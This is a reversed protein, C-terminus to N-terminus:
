ENLRNSSHISISIKSVTSLKVLPSCNRSECTYRCSHKVQCILGKTKIGMQMCLWLSLQKIIEFSFQPVAALREINFPLPNSSLLFLSCFSFQQQLILGFQKTEFTDHSLWLTMTSPANLVGCSHQAKLGVASIMNVQTLDMCHKILHWELHGKFTNIKDSEVLLTNWIDVM